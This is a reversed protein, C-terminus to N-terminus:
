CSGAAVGEWDPSPRSSPSRSSRGLGAAYIAARGGLEVLSGPTLPMRARLLVDGGGSITDRPFLNSSSPTPSVALLFAGYRGRAGRGRRRRHLAGHAQGDSGGLAARALATVAAIGALAPEPKTLALLGLLAGVGVLWGTTEKRHLQRLGLLLCLLGLTALTAAITHPLM